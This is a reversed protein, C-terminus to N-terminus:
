NPVYGFTRRGALAFQPEKEELLFTQGDIVVKTVDRQSMGWMRSDFRQLIVVLLIFILLQELISFPEATVDGQADYWRMTLLADEISVTTCHDM